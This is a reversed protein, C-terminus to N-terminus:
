AAGRPQAVVFESSSFGIKTGESNLGTPFRVAALPGILGLFILWRFSSPMGWSPFGGRLRIWGQFTTGFDRSRTKAGAPLSEQVTQCAELRASRTSPSKPGCAALHAAGWEGSTLRALSALGILLYALEPLGELSINPRSNNGSAKTPIRLWQLPKSLRSCCSFPPLRFLSVALEHAGHAIQRLEGFSACGLPLKEDTTNVRKGM